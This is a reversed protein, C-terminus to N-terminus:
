GCWQSITLGFFVTYSDGGIDTGRDGDDTSGDSSPEDDLCNLYIEPQFIEGNMSPMDIDCIIDMCSWLMSEKEQETLLSGKQNIIRYGWALDVAKANIRSEQTSAFRAESTYRPSDILM